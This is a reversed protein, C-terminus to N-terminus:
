ATLVFFPSRATNNGNIDVTNGPALLTPVNPVQWGLRTWVIIASMRQQTLNYIIAGKNDTIVGDKVARYNVDERIAYMAQSFDGGVALATGSPLSGNKAFTAPVGAIEFNERQGITAQGTPALMLPRQQSDVMGRLQGRLTPTGVLANVDYGQIECKQYAGKDGCLAQYLNAFAVGGNSQYTAGPYTVGGYSTGNSFSSGGLSVGNGAAVAQSVISTPWLPYAPANIGALIALDIVQSISQRIKPIAMGWIPYGSDDLVTQPIVVISCVEQAIIYKNKWLMLTDQRLGDDGNVFFSSPLVDLCPIRDQLRSMNPARHMMPLVVSEQEIGNIVAMAEEPMLADAGSRPISYGFAM